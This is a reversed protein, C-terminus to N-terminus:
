YIKYYKMCVICRLKFFFDSEVDDVGLRSLRELVYDLELWDVVELVGLIFVIM